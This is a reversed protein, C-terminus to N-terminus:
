KQKSYQRTRSPSIIRRVRARKIVHWTLLPILSNLFKEWEYSISGLNPATKEKNASKLEQLMDWTANGCPLISSDESYRIEVMEKSVLFNRPRLYLTVSPPSPVLLVSTPTTLVSRAESSNASRVTPLAYPCVRRCLYCSFPRRRLHHCRQHGNWRSEYRKRLFDIFPYDNDADGPDKDSAGRVTNGRYSFYNSLNSIGLNQRYYRTM